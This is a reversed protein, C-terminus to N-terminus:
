ALKSRLRDFEDEDIEGAALRQALIERPSRSQPVARSGNRIVALIGWIVLAAFGIWFLAMVVMGVWGWPAFFDFGHGYMM